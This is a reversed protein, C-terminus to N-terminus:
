RHVTRMKKSRQWNCNNRVWISKHIIPNNNSRDALFYISQMKHFVAVSCKKICRILALNRIFYRTYCIETSIFHTLPKVNSKHLHGYLAHKSCRNEICKACCLVINGGWVQVCDAFDIVIGGMLGNHLGIYTIRDCFECTHRGGVLAHRIRAFVAASCMCVCMCVFLCVRKRECWVSIRVAKDINMSMATGCRKGTPAILGEGRVDGVCFVHADCLSISTM